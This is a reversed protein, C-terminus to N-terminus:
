PSAEEVPEPPVPKTTNMIEDIMGRVEGHPRLNLYSLVAQLLESPITHLTKV